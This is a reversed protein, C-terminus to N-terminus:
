PYGGGQPIGVRPIGVVRLYVWGSTCQSAYVWGSTCQSAYVCGSLYWGPYVSSQSTGVRTYVVRLCVWRLLSTDVRLYVWRLLSTCVRLYVRTYVGQLLYVRTICGPIYGSLNVRHYVGTYAEEKVRKVTPWSGWGWLSLGPLVPLFPPVNHHKELM